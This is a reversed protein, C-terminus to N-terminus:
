LEKVAKDRNLMLVKADPDVLVKEPKFGCVITVTQKGGAGLTVTRRSEQYQKVTAAEADEAAHADGAAEVSASQADTGRAADRERSAADAPPAAEEKPFREGRTAAIELPMTGTGANEVEVTVEWREPPMEGGGGGVPTGQVREAKVIRYEPVVVEFFWQRTFADFATVDDAHTRMVAVFDELVAHDPNTEYTRIFDQIGALARERGMHNLLMWFVWGGKDYTVSTDGEKSGDIKVLPREADKQRREGYRSEIRKAFEIRQRPGKVQDFLLLTSFHAMGESLINGGPGEGPLLINGWWQHAAEHATVMFALNARPDSKTLFGIGESFTINTPFGQAYGALAPFESVKLREWPFPMFWESFYKRSADLAESMEDINYTHRPHYYLATGVGEKVSWKGGVVNFFKVPHDSRWETVRVGGAAEDRVQVGVSNYTYSDPGTIRVRTTMGDSAGFAADTRGVHHDAPWEKSDFKNEDDIGVDELYGVVPVFSPSFSTLVVGSPLIFEGAGGGNKSIGDPFRGDFEFGITMTDGPALPLPPTFIMLAMRDEPEYAAGNMTWKMNKWHLGRTLPVQAMAIDHDNVLTYTGKSEIRRKAPDLKLDLDVNAVNPYKAGTWTAVNRRWYDKRAKEAAPGGPGSAVQMYLVIGLVLPLTAYPALALGARALSPPRLRDGLRSVDREARTFVRATLAVLFVAVGLWMLRNLVIATRDIEFVGMDSWQVAGWMNWNGAWNMQGTALRYFTFILAALGLAYTTYRNRTLAQLAMVFTTWVILTPLVILGWVIGFPAPDLSVRGQIALALMCGVFGALLIVAAVAGNAIAKGLLAAGTRIPTAHFIAGLGSRREREMSEVTYFLLLLAILTTLMNMTAVVLTGTTHLLPTDFPGENFFAEGVVQLLIIPVFLYLGPQSRLEKLEARAVTWAGRAFGIAGGAMGLVALGAAGGAAGSATAVGVPAEAALAAEVQGRRVAKQSLKEGRLSRAFSRHALVVAGAAVVLLWLRNLLFVGDLSVRASNYFEVGRDVKLWTENLWRFGAPDVVMLLRNVRPDLWSPSWDWLFFGCVLLVAVPLVFVLIPKRTWTGVAFATGAFFLIPPLAFWLAPILYNMLEFPGRIDKAAANPMVHNFFMMFLVHAVLVVLFSLLVAAFKGWIYEGPRLPTAHLVPGIKQDEDHIVTMGAAVAIFFGYLLLVVFSLLMSVSFESTLWAQTGGVVGEGSQIRMHGTSLGWSTLTLVLLFIWFLPRGANHKLDLAAVRFFRGTSM